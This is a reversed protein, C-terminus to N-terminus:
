ALASYLGHQREGLRADIFYRPMNLNLAAMTTAIGLPLAMRMLDWRRRPEAAETLRPHGAAFRRGHRVDFLLLAALWVVALGCCAWAVSRTM